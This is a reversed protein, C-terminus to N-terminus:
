GFVKFSTQLTPDQDDSRGDGCKPCRTQLRGSGLNFMCDVIQRINAIRAHFRALRFRTKSCFILKQRMKARAIANKLM